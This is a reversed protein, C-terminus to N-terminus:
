ITSAPGRGKQQLAGAASKPITMFYNEGHRVVKVVFTGPFGGPPMDTYYHVDGLAVGEPVAPFLAMISDPLMVPQEYFREPAHATGTQPEPEPLPYTHDRKADCSMVAVTAWATAWAHLATNLRFLM